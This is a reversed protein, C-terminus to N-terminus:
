PPSSATSSRTVPIEIQSSDNGGADRLTGEIRSFQHTWHYFSYSLWAGSSVAFALLLALGRTVEDYAKGTAVPVRVMTWAGLHGQVEIPCAVMVVNERSGQQVVMQPTVGRLSSRVLTGIRGRETSPVDTKPTSGQHTPYAYAIFGFTNHWFGGEVGQTEDLVVNLLAVMLVEDPTDLSPSAARVYETQIRSCAESAVAIAKETQADAGLEYVSRIVYALAACVALTFLWLLVLRFRLTLAVRM